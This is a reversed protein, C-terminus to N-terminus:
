GFIESIYVFILFTLLPLQRSQGGQPKARAGVAHAINPRTCVMAYMLSGVALAYPVKAMDDKDEGTQRSQKKYLKLHTAMPTSRVRADNMRFKYLVKM